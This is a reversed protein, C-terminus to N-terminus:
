RKTRDNAPRPDRTGSLELLERALTRAATTNLYCVPDLVSPTERGPDDTLRLEIDQSRTGDPFVVIGLGDLRTRAHTYESM